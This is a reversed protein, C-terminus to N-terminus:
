VVLPHPNATREKADEMEKMIEAAKERQETLAKEEAEQEEKEEREMDEHIDIAYQWDPSTIGLGYALKEGFYNIGAFGSLLTRFKYLSSKFAGAWAGHALKKVLSWSYGSWSGPVPEEEASM